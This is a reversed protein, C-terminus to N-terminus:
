DTGSSREAPVHQAPLTGSGSTSTRAGLLSFLLGLLRRASLSEDALLAEVAHLGAIRRVAERLEAISPAGRQAISELQGLLAGLQPPALRADHLATELAAFLGRDGEAYYAGPILRGPHDCRPCAPAAGPADSASLFSRGCGDCHGPFYRM